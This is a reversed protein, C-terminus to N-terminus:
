KKYKNFANAAAIASVAGLGYKGAATKSRAAEIGSVGAILAWVWWPFPINLDFLGMGFSFGYQTDENDNGTGTGTEINQLPGTKPSCDQPTGTHAKIIAQYIASVAANGSMKAFYKIGGQCPIGFALAPFSLGLRNLYDSTGTGGKYSVLMGTEFNYPTQNIAARVAQELPGNEQNEFVHVYLIM